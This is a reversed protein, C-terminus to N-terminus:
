LTIKGKKKLQELLNDYSEDIARTEKVKAEKKQEIMIKQREDREKNRQKDKKDKEIRNGKILLILKKHAVNAKRKTENIDKNIKGIALHEKKLTRMTKFMESQLKFKKDLIDSIVDAHMDSIYRLDDMKDHLSDIESKVAMYQESQRLQKELAIVKRSLIDEKKGSLVETQVIWDLRQIEAILKEPEFSEGKYMKKLNSSIDSAKKAFQKKDNKLIKLHKQLSLAISNLSKEKEKLPLIADHLESLKLSVEQSKLILEKVQSNLSDREEKLTESTEKKAVVDIM